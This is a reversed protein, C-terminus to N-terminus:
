LADEGTEGTRIRLVTEVPLVWLKGDGIKGSRAVNMIINAIEQAQDDSCLVKVESKPLFDVQYEGGRYVETHGRQRGYGQVESVTLGQVGLEHLAEKVADVKFPKVIGVILKM